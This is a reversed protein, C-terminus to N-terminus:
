ELEYDTKFPSKFGGEKLIKKLNDINSQTTTNAEIIEISKVNGYVRVNLESELHNWTCYNEKFDRFEKYIVGKITGKDDGNIIIVQFVFNEEFCQVLICNVEEYVGSDKVYGVKLITGRGYYKQDKSKKQKM